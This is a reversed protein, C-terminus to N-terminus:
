ELNEFLFNITANIDKECAMYAQVVELESRQTMAMVQDISARDAQSIQLEIQRPQGAQAQNAAPQQGGTASRTAPAAAAATPEEQLLALFDEHHNSLQEFLQPNQQSIQQLFNPLMAPNRRIENLITNFEPTQTLYQLPNNGAAPAGAAPGSGSEETSTTQWQEQNAGATAAGSFENVLDNVARDLDGSLILEVAMDANGQSILLATKANVATTNSIAVIQSILEDSIQVRTALVNLLEEKTIGAPVQTPAAPTTAAPAVPATTTPTVPVATAPAPATTTVPAAPTPTAPTAATSTSAVPTQEPKVPTPAAGAPPKGPMVVFFGKDSIGAAKATVTNSLIKGKWILKSIGPAYKAESNKASHITQKVKEITDEETVDVELETKDLFKCKVKM